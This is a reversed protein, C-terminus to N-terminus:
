SASPWTTSTIAGTGAQRVHDERGVAPEDDAAPREAGAEGVGLARGLARGVEVPEGTGDLGAREAPRVGGDPGVLALAVEEDDAVEDQGAVAEAGVGARVALHLLQEAHGDDPQVQDVRAVVV